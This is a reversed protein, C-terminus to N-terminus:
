GLERVLRRAASLNENLEKIRAEEQRVYAKLDAADTNPDFRFYGEGNSLNLIVTHKRADSIAQRVQRDCLGTQSSLFERGVANFRGRPIYDEIRM